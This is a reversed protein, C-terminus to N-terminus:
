SRCTAVAFAPGHGILAVKTQVPCPSEPRHDGSRPRHLSEALHAMRLADPLRHLYRHFGCRNKSRCRDQGQQCKRGPGNRGGAAHVARLYAAKVGRGTHNQCLAPQGVVHGAIVAASAPAPATGIIAGAIVATSAPAAGVIPRTMVATSTTATGVIPRTVIMTPTPATAIVAGAVIVASMPAAAVIMAAAVAAPMAAVATVITATVATPMAAMTTIIAAPMTTVM